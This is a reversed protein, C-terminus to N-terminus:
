GVVGEVVPWVFLWAISAAFLVLTIRWGIPEPRDHWCDKEIEGLQQGYASRYEDM